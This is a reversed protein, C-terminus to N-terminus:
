WVPEGMIFMIIAALAMLGGYILVLAMLALAMIGLGEIATDILKHIKDRM